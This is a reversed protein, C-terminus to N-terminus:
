LFQLLKYEEDIKSCIVRYEQQFCESGAIGMSDWYVTVNAAILEEDSETIEVTLIEYKKVEDIDTQFYKDLNKIDEDLLNGSEIEKIKEIANEKDIEGAYFGSLVDIRQSILGKVIETDGEQASFASAILTAM